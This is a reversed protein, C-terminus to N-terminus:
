DISISVGGVLIEFLNGDDDKANQFDGVQMPLESFVSPDGLRLFCALLLHLM